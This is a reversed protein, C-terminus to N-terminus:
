NSQDLEKLISRIEEDFGINGPYNKEAQLYWYKSNGIDGEKRHLYAHVWKAHRSSLKQVIQHSRDWNNHLEYWIAQHYINELINPDSINKLEDIQM